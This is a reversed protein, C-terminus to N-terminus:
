FGEYHPKHFDLTSILLCVRVEEWKPRHSRWGAVKWLSDPFLSPVPLTVTFLCKDPHQSCLEGGPLLRPRESALRATMSATAKQKMSLDFTPPLQLVQVM